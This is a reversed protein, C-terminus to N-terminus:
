AVTELTTHYSDIFRQTQLEIIRKNIEHEDTLYFDLEKDTMMGVICAIMKTKFVVNNKIYGTVLEIHSKPDGKDAKAQLKLFHPSAYLLKQTMPHQLKLVPRLTKSQFAELSNAGEINIDLQPRINILHQDRM